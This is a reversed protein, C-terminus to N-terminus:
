TGAPDTSIARRRAASFWTLTASNHLKWVIPSWVRKVITWRAGADSSRRAAAALRAARAARVGRGAITFGAFPAFGAAFFADEGLAADLATFGGAARAAFAFALAVFLFYGQRIEPEAAVLVAVFVGVHDVGSSLAPPRTRADEIPEPRRRADANPSRCEVFVGDAEDFRVIRIELEVPGANQLPLVRGRLLRRRRWLVFATATPGALRARRAPLLGGATCWGRLLLANRRNLRCGEGHLGRALRGTMRLLRGFVKRRSRGDGPESGLANDPEAGPM